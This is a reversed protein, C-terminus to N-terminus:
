FEFVKDCLKEEPAVVTKNISKVMALLDESLGMFKSVVICEHVSSPLVIYGEPFIAELEAHAFMVAIAGYVRSKNSVVLMTPASSIDTFLPSFMDSMSTLVYDYQINELSVKLVEKKSVGWTDVMAKSVKVSGHTDGMPIVIYPVIKLGDFSYIKASLSIEAETGNRYFRARLYPKVEDYNRIDFPMVESADRSRFKRSMDLIYEVADSVSMNQQFLPEVSITPCAKNVEPEVTVATVDVNNKTYRHIEAKIGMRDLSAVVDEAYEMVAKDMITKNM